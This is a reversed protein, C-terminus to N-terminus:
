YTGNVYKLAYILMFVYNSNRLCFNHFNAKYQLSPEGIYAM